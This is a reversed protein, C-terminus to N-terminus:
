AQVVRTTMSSTGKGVTSTFLLLFRHKVASTVRNYLCRTRLTSRRLHHPSLWEVHCVCQQLECYDRAFGAKDTFLANAIFQSNALFKALVSLCFVRQQVIVQSRSSKCETSTTHTFHNSMSVEGSFAVGTDVAAAMRRVDIKPGEEM